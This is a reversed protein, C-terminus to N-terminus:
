VVQTPQRFRWLDLASFLKPARSQSIGHSCRHLGDSDEIEYSCKVLVCGFFVTYGLNGEISITSRTPVLERRLIDDKKRIWRMGVMVKRPRQM